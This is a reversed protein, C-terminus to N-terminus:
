PDSGPLFCLTLGPYQPTLFRRVTNGREGAGGWSM